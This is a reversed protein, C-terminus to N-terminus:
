KYVINNNTQTNFVLKSYSDRQNKALAKAKHKPPGPTSNWWKWVPSTSLNSNIKEFLNAGPQQSVRNMLRECEYFPSIFCDKKGIWILCVAKALIVSCKALM